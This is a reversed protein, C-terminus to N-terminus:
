HALHSLYGLFQEPISKGTLIEAGFAIVATVMAIRGIDMETSMLQEIKRKRAVEQSLRPQYIEHSFKSIERKKNLVIPQTTYLYDEENSERYHLRTKSFSVAQINKERSNRSNPYKSQSSSEQPTPLVSLGQTLTFSISIILLFKFFNSM